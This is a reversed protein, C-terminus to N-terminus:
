NFKYGITIILAKRTLPNENYYMNAKPADDFAFLSRMKSSYYYEATLSVKNAITITGGVTYSHRQTTKWYAYKTYVDLGVYGLQLHYNIKNDTYISESELIYGASVFGTFNMLELTYNFSLSTSNASLIFIDVNNGADRENYKLWQDNGSWVSHSCFHDANFGFGKYNIDTGLYYVDNFPMGRWPEPEKQIFWTAIFTYPTITLDDAVNFKYWLGLDTCMVLDGKYESALTCISVKTGLCDEAYAIRTIFILAIILKKM